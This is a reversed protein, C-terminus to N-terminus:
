TEMLQELVIGNFGKCLSSSLTVGLARWSEAHMFCGWPIKSRKSGAVHRDVHISGSYHAVSALDLLDSRVTHVYIRLFSRYVM